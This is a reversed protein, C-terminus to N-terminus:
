TNTTSAVVYGFTQSGFFTLYPPVTRSGTAVATTTDNTKDNACNPTDDHVPMPRFLNKPIDWYTSLVKAGHIQGLLIFHDNNHCNDDLIHVLQCVMYAVTGDIYVLPSSASISSSGLSSHDTYCSIPIPIAKLGPVPVVVSRKKEHRRSKKHNVKALKSPQQRYQGDDKIDDDNTVNSKPCSATFKNTDKGSVRGVSLVMEEMGQIPVSLTFFTGVKMSAPSHHQGVEANPYEEEKPINLLLSATHRRRNISFMFQGTNNTATLWSLVMVNHSVNNMVFNQEQQTQSSKVGDGSTGSTLIAAAGNNDIADDTDDHSSSSKSGCCCLFCVPNTYLLRSFQKKETLEIWHPSPVCSEIEQPSSWGVHISDDSAADINAAALDM